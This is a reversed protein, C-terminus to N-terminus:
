PTTAPAAVAAPASTEASITTPTVTVTTTTVTTTTTTGSPAAAAVKAAEAAAADSAAKNAAAVKMAADFASQISASYSKELDPYLAIAAQVAKSYDASQGLKSHLYVAYAEVSDFSLSSTSKVYETGGLALMAGSEKGKKKLFGSALGGGPVVSGLGKAAASGAQEGAINGVQAALAKEAWGTLTGNADIPLLYKGKAGALPAPATLAVDYASFKQNLEVMRQVLAAARAVDEASSAFTSSAAASVFALAAAFRLSRSIKM